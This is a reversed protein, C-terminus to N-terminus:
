EEKICFFSGVPTLESLRVGSAYFASASGGDLNIASTIHLKETKNVEDILLPMDGLLPGDFVADASYFAFFLIKGDDTLAAAMRRAREDSRIALKLPRGEWYLMPGTQLAIRAATAPIESSISAKNESSVSFFGNILTSTSPGRLETGNTRFLGLPNNQTDYFGGNVGGMCAKTEMIEGSSMRKPFNAILQAQAPSLEIYSYGSILGNAEITKAPALSPSHTTPTDSTPLQTLPQKTKAIVAVALIVVLAIIPIIRKV